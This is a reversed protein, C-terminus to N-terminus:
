LGYDFIAEFQIFDGSAGAPYAGAGLETASTTSIKLKAQLSSGFAANLAYNYGNASTFTIYTPGKSVPLNEGAPLVWKTVDIVEGAGAVQVYSGSLVMVGQVRIQNVDRTIGRPNVTCLNAM